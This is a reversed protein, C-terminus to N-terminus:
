AGFAAAERCISLWEGFPIDWRGNTVPNIVSLHGRM